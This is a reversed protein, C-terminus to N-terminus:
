GIFISTAKCKNETVDLYAMIDTSDSKETQIKIETAQPFHENQAPKKIHAAITECLAIGNRRAEPGPNWTTFVMVLADYVAVDDVDQRWRPGHTAELAAEVGKEM